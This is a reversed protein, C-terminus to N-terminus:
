RQHGEGEFLCFLFISNEINKNYMLACNEAETKKM